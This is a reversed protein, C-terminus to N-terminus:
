ITTLNRVFDDHNLLNDIVMSRKRPNQDALFAETEELSPIRGVMDLYVRRIWEEDDAVPSPEIENDTWTQRINTDIFESLSLQSPPTALGPEDAIGEAGTLM